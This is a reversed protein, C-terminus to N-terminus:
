ACVVFFKQFHVWLLIILNKMIIGGRVGEREGGRECVCMCVCVCVCACVCVCVCVCMCQCASDRLLIGLCKYFKVFLALSDCCNM